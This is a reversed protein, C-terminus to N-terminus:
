VRVGFDAAVSMGSAVADEHFGHRFYAGCFWTRRPGNLTSLRDQTAMSTTDYVPHTFSVEEIVTDDDLSSDPNLTVLYRAHTSLRQLRNMDYTVAVPAHEPDAARRLYNWAAWARRNAPLVRCDTHLWAFNRSYRWAGLLRQEDPHPEDLLHLATDAHTGVVVADFRRPDAGAVDVLVGDPERRIRQVSANLVLEADIRRTLRDVWSRSGGRITRWRPRDHLGLLGHNAFFRLFHDAPFDRIDNRSGSWIAAGMPLVFHRRTAEDVGARDLFEVLTGASAGNGSALAARGVNGFRVIGALLSWYAPRVLNSRQAFLGDLGTGAYSLGTRECAYGFSMDGAQSDVELEELLDVFRPYNRENYVIFGMDVPTGADPGSPIEVTHVHGGPRGAREFLTVRHRRALYWAAALGAAGCGVVAVRRGPERPDFSM